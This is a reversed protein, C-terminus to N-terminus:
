VTHGPPVTTPIGRQLVPPEPEFGGQPALPLLAARSCLLSSDRPNSEIIELTGELRCSVTLSHSHSQSFFRAILNVLGYETLM